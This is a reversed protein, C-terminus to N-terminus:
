WCRAAKGKPVNVMDRVEVMAVMSKVRGVKWFSTKQTAPM